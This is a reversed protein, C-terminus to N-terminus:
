ISLNFFMMMRMIIFSIIIAQKIGLIFFDGEGNYRKSREHMLCSDARGKLIDHKHM